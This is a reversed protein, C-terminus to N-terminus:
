DSDSDDEDSDSPVDEKEESKAITESPGGNDEADDADADDADDADDEDGFKYKFAGSSASSSSIHIEDLIFKLSYFKGYWLHRLSCKIDYHTDPNVAKYEGFDEEM